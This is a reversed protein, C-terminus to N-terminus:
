QLVPVTCRGQPHSPVSVCPSIYRDMAHELAGSGKISGVVNVRFSGLTRSGVGLGWVKKEFLGRGGGGGSGWCLQLPLDQPKPRCAAPAYYM